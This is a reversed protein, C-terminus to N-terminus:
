GDIQNLLVVISLIALAILYHLFILQGRVALYVYEYRVTITKNVILPWRALLLVSATITPM